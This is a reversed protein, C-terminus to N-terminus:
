VQEPTQKHAEGWLYLCTSILWLPQRAVRGVLKNALARVLFREGVAVKGHMNSFGRRGRKNRPVEINDGNSPM